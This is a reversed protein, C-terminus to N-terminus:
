ARPAPAAEPCEKGDDMEEVMQELTLTELQGHRNEELAQLKKAFNAGSRECLRSTRKDIRGEVARDVDDLTLLNMGRSPLHSGDAARVVVNEKELDHLIEQLLRIPMGYRKQYSEMNWHTEGRMFCRCIDLTVLYTFHRRSVISINRMDSERAYTSRNQVAFSIEAGLLTIVWNINLWFLSIPIAAFAGYIKNYSAIGIQFRICLWQWLVWMCGAAIGGIVGPLWKVRTNPLFIYLLTFALSIGVLGLARMGLNYLVQIPGIMVESVSTGTLWGNLAFAVIALLPVSVVIFIYDALKRVLSRAEQVGWIKNLSLEIRGMVQILTGVLFVLGVMGLALFNTTDVLELVSDLMEAVQVPIRDKSVDIVDQLAKEAGLGKAVAFGMALMPIMSLLTIFTLASAQLGVENRHCDRVVIHGVRLTEYLSRRRRSLDDMLDVSWIDTMMFERFRHLKRGIFRFDM